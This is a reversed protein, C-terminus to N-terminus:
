ATMEQAPPNTHFTTMADRSMVVIADQDIFGPAAIMAVCRLMLANVLVSNAYADGGTRIEDRVLTCCRKFDVPTSAEDIMQLVINM